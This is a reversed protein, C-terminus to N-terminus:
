KKLIIQFLKKLIKAYIIKFIFLMIWILTILIFFSKYLFLINVILKNIEMYKNQNDKKNEKIDEIILSVDSNINIYKCSNQKYIPYDM